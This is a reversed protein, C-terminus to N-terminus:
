IISRPDWDVQKIFEVFMEIKRSDKSEFLFPEVERTLKPWDIEKAQALLRDKLAEQSGVGLKEKLYGFDPKALSSLFVIDYFDRGQLRKRNLAAYIKQSLILPAPTVFIESFVDFKNLIKKEPTYTFGQAFSDIQILIKEGPHPSLDNVFLIEPLRINCRFAMKGATNMEVKLGQAELGAQVKKALAEFENDTLEFNDFDLDESFRSNNYILRLATGGLFSLKTAYASNFIIELIKYQLYERLMGRKFSRLSEPYQQEIQQLTLM